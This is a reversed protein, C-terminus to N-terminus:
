EGNEAEKLRALINEVGCVHTGRDLVLTPTSLVDLMDAEAWAELDNHLLCLTLGPVHDLDVRRKVEECAACRPSLFLKM